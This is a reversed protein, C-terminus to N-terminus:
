QLRASELPETCCLRSHRQFKRQLLRFSSDYWQTVKFLAVQQLCSAPIFLPHLTLLFSGSTSLLELCPSRAYVPVSVCLFRSRGFFHPVSGLQPADNHLTLALPGGLKLIKSRKTWIHDRILSVTHNSRHADSTGQDAIEISIIERM